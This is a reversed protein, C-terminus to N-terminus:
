NATQQFEVTLQVGYTAPSPAGQPIDQPIDEHDSVHLWDIGAFSKGDIADTVTDALQEVAAATPALCDLRLTGKTTGSPGDLTGEDAGSVQSVVIGARREGQPRTALWVRDAVIATIATSNLLVPVIAAKIM